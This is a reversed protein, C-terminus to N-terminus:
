YFNGRPHEVSLDAPSRQGAVRRHLPTTEQRSMDLGLFSLFLQIGVLTPMAALMITGATAPLGSQISARWELLGFTVGFLIMPLSALLFVSGLSFNRLFYTYFLRKFIRVIHKAGFDFLATGVNLHSTEDAYKAAMPVDAVVANVLGLRFLMDSEFFYRREVKQLHLWPLVHAQLATFGNTPDMVQWYGTSLKTLFSLGANGLLRNLPMDALLEPDFFRNGKAYDADGRLLPAVLFPILSPTIQGDGDVKVLVEFGNKAAAHYGAMVAGGVGQNQDLRILTVRPDAGGLERLLFAGSDDPCADDVVFVHEVQEFLAQVVGVIHRTVKYAPVIACIRPTPDNVSPGAKLYRPEISLM